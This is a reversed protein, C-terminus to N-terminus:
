VFHFLFPFIFGVIAIWIMYIPFFLGISKEIKEIGGQGRFKQILEKSVFGLHFVLLINMVLVSLKNPSNGFEQIRYILANISILNIIIVNVSVIMLFGLLWKSQSEQGLEGSSFIILAMVVIIIINFIILFERDELINKPTLILASSFVLLSITVLPTFIKAILPSIKNVLNPNNLVLNTSVIPIAPFLWVGINQMYFEGIEMDLLKYLAITILSFIMTSIGVLGSLILLNGNFRLFEMREKSVLVKKGLFGIGFLIWSLIAFNIVSLQYTSSKEGVPFNAMQLFIGLFIILPFVYYIKDLKHKIGIFLFLPLFLIISLYKQYFIDPELGMLLPLKTLFGSTLAFAIAIHWDQEKLKKTFNKM